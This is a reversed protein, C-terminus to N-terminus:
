QSTQGAQRAVYAYLKQLYPRFINLFEDVTYLKGAQLGGPLPLKPNPAPLAYILDAGSADSKLWLTMLNVGGPATRLLRVEYSGTQIQELNQLQNLANMISSGGLAALTGGKRGIRTAVGSEDVKVEETLVLAGNEEILYQYGAPQVNELGEGNAIKALPLIYIPLPKAELASVDGMSPAGAPLHVANKMGKLVLDSGNTPGSVFRLGPPHEASPATEPAPEIIKGTDATL